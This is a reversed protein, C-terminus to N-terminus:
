NSGLYEMLAGFPSSHWQETHAKNVISESMKQLNINNLNINLKEATTKFEKQLEHSAQRDTLKKRSATLLVDAAIASFELQYKKPLNTLHIEDLAATISKQRIDAEISQIQRNKFQIDSSFMDEAFNNQIKQYYNKLRKSDADERLNNIMEIAKAATYQNEIRLNEAQQEKVSTDAEVTREQLRNAIYNQVAQGIGGFDPTFPQVSVPSATPPNVGGASQASGATIQGLAMYPNFGAAIMRAKQASPDNYAIQQNWMDQNYDMQKQLMRENFENNMQAIKMNTQNSKKNSRYGLWNGILNSAGSIGAGIISSLGLGLAM